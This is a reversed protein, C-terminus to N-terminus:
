HKQDALSRTPVIHLVVLTLTKMACTLNYMGRLQENSEITDNCGSCVRGDRWGLTHSSYTRTSYPMQRSPSSAGPPHLPM